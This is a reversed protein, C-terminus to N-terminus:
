EECMGGNCIVNNGYIGQCDSIQDCCIGPGDAGPKDVLTVDDVNWSSVTFVGSSGISFGFRVQFNSNAYQTVDHSHFTWNSDQIGPSSGSQWLSVWTSGNYVSVQNVMYNAYDSNLWRWYYLYLNSTNSTNIVPSTAYYFGHITKPANGGLIVGVIKNDSSSSHDSSPDPSGYSQGSSTQTAGWQWDTDLSWGKDESFDDRFLAEQCCGEVGTPEYVCAGEVCSDITCIDDFDDCEENSYCCININQCENETCKDNTCEDLDDCDDDKLCCGDIWNGGCEGLLCVDEETCNNLDNCTEGQPINPYSCGSQPNCEDYTCNNGDSCVVPDGGCTGEICHDNKTCKSNDDCGVTNFPFYCSSDDPNCINDTCPDDDECDANVDCCGPAMSPPHQCIGSSDCSDDTCINNDECDAPEYCCYPPALEIPDCVNNKCQDITCPDTDLCDGLHMCCAETFSYVCKGGECKGVTCLLGDTCEVKTICDSDPCSEMLRFDDFYVGDYNNDHGDITDFVIRFKVTQGRWAQVDLEIHRWKKMQYMSEKGWLPILGSESVIFFTFNDYNLTNEVNAWFWFDVSTKVEDSLNIPQTEAFVKVRGGFDYNGTEISGFYLSHDGSHSQTDSIQWTATADEPAFLTVVSWTLGDEFGEDSITTPPCCDPITENECGTGPLCSDWTCPNSDDCELQDHQCLGSESDCWDETCKNSDNCNKEQHLCGGNVCKDITCYDDDMCDDDISCPPPIEVELMDVIDVDETVDGDPVVDMLTDTDPTLGDPLVETEEVADNTDTIDPLSIETEVLLDHPAIDLEGNVDSDAPTSCAIFTPVVLMIALCRFWCTSAIRYNM